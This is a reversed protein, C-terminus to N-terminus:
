KARIRSINQPDFLYSPLTAYKLNNIEAVTTVEQLYDYITVKFSIVNGSGSVIDSYKALKLKEGSATYYIRQLTENNSKNIWIDIRAYM